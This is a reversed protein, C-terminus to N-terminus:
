HPTGNPLSLLMTLYLTRWSRRWGGGGVEERGVGGGKGNRTIEIGTQRGRLCSSSRGNTSSVDLAEWLSCKEFRRAQSKTIRTGFDDDDHDDDYDDYDVDGSDDDVDYDDRRTATMVM